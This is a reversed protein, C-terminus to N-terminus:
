KNTYHDGNNTCKETKTNDFDIQLFRSSAWINTALIRTLLYVCCRFWKTSVLKSLMNAVLIQTLLHPEKMNEQKLKTVCINTVMIHTLLYVCCRFWKTSVLKDVYQGGINSYTFSEKMNEQKPEIVCINTVMIHTLLYTLTCNRLYTLM